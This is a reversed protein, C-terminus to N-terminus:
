PLRPFFALGGLAVGGVTTFDGVAALVGADAAVDAVGVVGNMNPHFSSVLAGSGADAAMLRRSNIGNYGGHFGFYVTGADAVVGQVDGDLHDTADFGHWWQRAGSSADWAGVVNFHKGGIGVFLRAGDPSVDLDLVDSSMTAPDPPEVDAFRQPLLSGDSGKLAALNLVGQGNVTSFRGGIYVASGDPSTAVSSVRREVTPKFAAVLTGTVTDLAAVKARATGGLSNFDGSVYLRTGNRWLDYVVDNADMSFSPDLAGTALDVRALNRRAVGNVTTFRGGVYLSSGVVAVTYVDGDTDAVFGAVPQGSAESVAVVHQRPLTTVGDTIATFEGGVYAIGGSQVVSRATGGTLRAASIPTASFGGSGTPISSTSTTTTSTSTTPATTSSPPPPPPPPAVVCASVGALAAVVVTLIAIPRQM